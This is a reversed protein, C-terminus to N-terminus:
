EGVLYKVEILTAEKTVNLVVNWACGAGEIRRKSEVALRQLQRALHWTQITPHPPNPPLHNPQLSTPSFVNQIFISIFMM